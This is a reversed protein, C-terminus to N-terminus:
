LRGGGASFEAWDLERLHDAGTRGGQLEAVQELLGPAVVRDELAAVPGLGEEPGERAVALEDLDVLRVGAPVVRLEVQADVPVRERGLFAIPREGAIPRAVERLGVVHHAVEVVERLCMSQTHTVARM